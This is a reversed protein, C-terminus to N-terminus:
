PEGRVLRRIEQVNYPERKTHAIRHCTPCLCILEELLVLRVGSAAVPKTHHCEIVFSGNVNLRFGCAQCAFNDREKCKVVLARNRAYTTISRDRLYGEIARPDDLAYAEFRTFSFRKTLVDQATNNPLDSPQIRLQKPHRNAYAAALLPRAEFPGRERLCVRFGKAKQFGYTKLFSERGVREYEDMALEIHRSEIQHFDAM